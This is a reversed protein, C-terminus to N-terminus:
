REASRDRAAAGAPRQTASATRRMRFPVSNVIGVVLSRFRYDDRGADRVIARVAPGDYHELGRGLAYVLLKETLTAVFENSRAVLAARLGDVGDFRTGDPLVGSADIEGESESRTRWRGVADFNELALGLPDMRAHCVSCAPNRRHQVMRERMALVKGSDDKEQLDPVNPPPPPPPAGLINELIWVGRLVPSTRHPYSRVTLISGHGLLGRRSSGTLSVRRFQDGYVNPIGYHRALRENLFTYDATLLDVVSGERLVSAVFLETERRFARRLNEDFDPFLRRDPLVAGVNRVYLWQGVFNEVLAGARPDALMRRVEAALVDPRRLEGREALTLLREDPISSWLFFSLRSALALDSVPYVTAEPLGPPDEEFRFLFSPSVLMRSLGLEIGSEFTGGNVVASRYFGLLDETDAATVPRRYAQRALAFLIQRACGIAAGSLPDDSSVPRCVFIRKRSPTEQAGSAGFPGAITVSSLYPQGHSDGNEPAARLFPQRVSELEASSRRIFAVGVRRSGAKAAFRVQLPEDATRLYDDGYLSRTGSQRGRPGGGALEAGVTLVAIQRGDLTVEIRHPETLGSIVDTVSERALRVRLTYEGDLPFYHSVLTGGRTGWALGALHGDQTLDSAVRYTETAPPLAPAGVALRSVRRSAALYRELLIPSVGLVDGINDFGYSSADVPLMASVDVDLALLDRIANRYEARNLRHLSAPRGPDPRRRAAEDLQEELWSTLQEHVAADPRPAGAPPMAGSQLKRAVKEWVAANASVDALDLGELTLAATRRRDDHCGICYKDLVARNAQAGDVPPPQLAAHTAGSSAVAAFTGALVLASWRVM